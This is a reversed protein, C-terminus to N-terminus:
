HAHESEEQNEKGEAREKIEIGARASRGEVRIVAAEV